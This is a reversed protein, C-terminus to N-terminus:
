AGNVLKGNQNQDVHMETEEAENGLTIDDASPVPASNAAGMARDTNQSPEVDRSFLIFNLVCVHLFRVYWRIQFRTVRPKASYIDRVLREFM